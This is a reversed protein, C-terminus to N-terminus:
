WSSRTPWRCTPAGSPGPPISRAGGDGAGHTRAAGRAHQRLQLRLHRADARGRAPDQRYEGALAPAARVLGVIQASSLGEPITLRHQVTKGSALLDAAALASTGAPFEYEGALLAAARGSVLAAIEFPLAQRIM